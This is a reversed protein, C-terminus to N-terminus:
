LHIHEAHRGMGAALLAAAAVTRTPWPSDCSRACRPRRSGRVRLLDAEDDYAGVHLAQVCRGESLTELRLDDLRTPRDSTGAQEVAATFM